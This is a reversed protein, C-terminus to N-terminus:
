VRGTIEHQLMQMADAAANAFNETKDAYIIGRSSNILYLPHQLRSFLAAVEKASGGQAGVGPLLVPMGASATVAEELEQQQTAGIVFGINQNKDAAKLTHIVKRYLPTGDALLLKEFDAAGPNSTLALVFHLRDTYDFFPQLSEVGMYPSLTSADVGAEEFLAKAYYASSNGIDGRKADGIILVDPYREQIYAVSRKLVGSGYEGEKEYFAFNLKYAAALGGTADIIARNFAYLPDDTALLHQPILKRDTDLGVCIHNGRTTQKRLKETAIM